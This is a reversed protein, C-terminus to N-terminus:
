QPKAPVNIGRVQDARLVESALALRFGTEARAWDLVEKLGPDSAELIMAAAGDRAALLRTRSLTEAADRRQGRQAPVWQARVSMPALGRSDPQIYVSFPDPLAMRPPRASLLGTAFPVAGLARSLADRDRLADREDSLDVVVEHWSLAAREGLHLSFAAYPKVAVTLPIGATSLWPANADGLGAVILALLPRERLNRTRPAEAASPLTPILLLQQRLGPGAYARIEADLGDVPSVYLELNRATAHGRVEQAAALPSAGSPVQYVAHRVGDRTEEALLKAGVSPLAEALLADVAAPDAEIAQPAPPDRRLLAALLHPSVWLLAASATLALALLLARHRV